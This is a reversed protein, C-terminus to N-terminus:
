RATRKAIIKKIYNEHNIYWFSMMVAAMLWFVSTMLPVEFICEVWNHVIVGSLGSLIGIELESIRFNDENKITRLSSIFVQYMLVAFATFGVIGGEVAVKLYYNDMYFTKEVGIGVLQSLSHNMAVAGGFHGIGVGLLPYQSLLRLGTAWRILRGGRLSSEIYDPSLMYSIRDGVSPVLAAVILAFILCPIILKVDKILVYVGIAVAFGIWAGRSFTFVLAAAMCFAFFIFLVSNRKKTSTVGLAFTIPASLTLLSGFVNPSSLISYVRTRVGAENQDVWGAPMEVGIIYQYIGHIAMIGVVAALVACVRRNGKETNLLQFAVFYWLIYQINARFGEISISYDPSNYILLMLMVAIYIFIFIDLPAQKIIKEKYSRVSKYIWLLFMAILFLEDWISALPAVFTRMVFDIFAYCALIWPTKEYDALLMAGALTCFCLGLGVYINAFASVVGVLVAALGLVVMTKKNLGNVM